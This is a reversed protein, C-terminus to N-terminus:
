IIPQIVKIGSILARALMKKGNEKYPHFGDSIYLNRNFPNIGVTGYIDIIPISFMHAIEKSANAYDEMSLGLSNVDFDTANSGDSHSNQSNGSLPTTLVIITNPCWRQLKMIMSAIAGKYTSIDFDGGNYYESNVWDNDAINSPSWQPKDGIPVNEAMDNTGGEILILNVSQKIMTKIREWSCFAGKHETTGEPPNGGGDRSNYTGDENAYFTDTNWAISQGGVGMGYHKAFHFYSNVYAQWGLTLSIGNGIATISDGYSCWEKNYWDNNLVKAKDFKNYLPLMPVNRHLLQKYPIFENPNTGDFNEIAMHRYLRQDESVRTNNFGNYINFCIYVCNAETTIDLTTGNQYFALVNGDKDLTILRRDNLLTVIDNKVDYKFLGYRTNPKVPIYESVEVYEQNVSSVPIGSSIVMGSVTNNDDFINKTLEEAIHVSSLDLTKTGEYLRRSNNLFPNLGEIIVYEDLESNGVNVRVFHANAVAQFYASPSAISLFTRNIDYFAIRTVSFKNRSYWNGETVPIFDSAYCGVLPVEDGYSNISMGSKAKNKSFLNQSPISFTVHELNISGDAIKSSQYVGGPLWDNVMSNWYYWKGDELVLMVGDTGNPYAAKLSSLTAYTGKPAGSIIAAFQSDVFSQDAKRINLDIDANTRQTSEEALQSATDQNIEAQAAETKALEGLVMDRAVPYTQSDRGLHMDVVESPQEAGNILNDVRTKQEQMDAGIDGFIKNLLNRFARTTLVGINEYPWKMM